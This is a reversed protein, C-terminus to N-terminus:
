LNYTLETFFLGRNRKKVLSFVEAFGSMFKPDKPNNIKEWFCQGIESRQILEGKTNKSTFVHCFMQTFVQGNKFITLYVDGRHVPKTKLGTKELLEREAAAAIKEGLHIKGIRPLRRPTDTLGKIPMAVDRRTENTGEGAGDRGADVGQVHVGPGHLPLPLRLHAPTVRRRLGPLGGHVHRG